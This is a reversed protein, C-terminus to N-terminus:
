IHHAIKIAIGLCCFGFLINMTDKGFLFHVPYNVYEDVKGFVGTYLNLLINSDM